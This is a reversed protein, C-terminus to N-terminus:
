PGLPNTYIKIVALGPSGGAATKKLTAEIFYANEGFNFSKNCTAVSRLQYLPDSAYDNSNFTLMNTTTGTELGYQKLTVIVQANAGNDKYRVAMKICDEYLGEVAVVNYRIDLTAPVAAAGSVAVVGGTMTFISTDAEDVTGASGVTTWAGGQAHALVPLSLVMALVIVLSAGRGCGLKM